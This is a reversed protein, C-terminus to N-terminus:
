DLFPLPRIEVEEEGLPLIEIDISEENFLKKIEDVKVRVEKEEKHFIQLICNPKQLNFILSNINKSKKVFAEIKEKNSKSFNRFNILILSFFYGLKAMDFQIRNGLIIGESKLRKLRYLALESSINAKIAINILKERGNKSLIKLINMDTKDLKVQRSENSILPYNESNSYEFIKLPYLEIFQPNILLYDTIFNEKNEFLKSIFNNLEQEDKFICNMYVEYKGYVKGYSMCNRSKNLNKSFEEAMKPKEFKLLLIIICSYGLKKWNFVPFFKRIIGEGMYKNIKYEVQPRTLGIAKAIKSFPERYHHYLYCLLKFDTEKLKM